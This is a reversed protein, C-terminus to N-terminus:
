MWVVARQVRPSVRRVESETGADHDLACLVEWRPDPEEGAEDVVHKGDTPPEERLETRV